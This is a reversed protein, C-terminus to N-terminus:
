SLPSVRVIVGFKPHDLYHLENLKFRRKENLRYYVSGTPNYELDALMYLYHGRQLRLFGNVSGSSNQLQVATGISDAPVAQTWAAHLLARYGASREFKAAIGSLSMHEPAVQPYNGLDALRRPWEIESREQDFIESSPKDQAFIVLEIKFAKDDASVAASFLCLLLLGTFTMKEM